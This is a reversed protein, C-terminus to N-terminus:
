CYISVVANALRAALDVQDLSAVAGGSRQAAFTIASFVTVLAFLPWKEM